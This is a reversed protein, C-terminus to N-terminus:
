PRNDQEGLYLSKIRGWTAPATATGSCDIVNTHSFNTIETVRQGSITALVASCTTLGWNNVEAGVPEPQGLALNWTANGIDNARDLKTEVDAPDDPASGLVLDTYLPCDGDDIDLGVDWQSIQTRTIFGSVSRLRVGLGVGGASTIRTNDMELRVGEAYLACAGALNLTCNRIRVVYNGRLRVQDDGESFMLDQLEIEGCGSECRSAPARSGGPCALSDVVNLGVSCSQFATDLIRVSKVEPDLAMAEIYNSFTCKDILVNEAGTAVRAGRIGGVFTCEMLSLNSECQVLTVPGVALNGDFDVGIVTAESGSLGALRSAEPGQAILTIAQNVTVAKTYDGPAVWVTDGPSAADIQGQLNQARAPGAWVLGLASVAGLALGELFRRSARPFLRTRM